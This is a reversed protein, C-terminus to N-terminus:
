MVVGEPTKTSFRVNFWHRHHHVAALKLAKKDINAEALRLTCTVVPSFASLIRFGLCLTASYILV